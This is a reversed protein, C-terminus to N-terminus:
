QTIFCGDEKLFQLKQIANSQVAKYNGWYESALNYHLKSQTGEHMNDFAKSIMSHMAARDDIHIEETISNLAIEISNKAAKSQKLRSYCWAKDAMLNAQLREANGDSSLHEEYLAIAELANGNLSQMQALLVPQLTKWSSDSHLLDFNIVSEIKLMTQRADRPADDDSLVSQRMTLMALWAMNHMSASITVDDLNALAHYRCRQYWPQALDYRNAMHLAEAVVLCARSRASHNEMSALSLSEKVFKVLTEINLKSYEIQALWAASIAQLEPAGGACSLGYARRISDNKEVGVNQFYGLLGDAFHIWISLRIQPNKRNEEKLAIITNQSEKFYGLRSWHAALEALLCNRDLQSRAKQVLESLKLEMRSRKIGNFM